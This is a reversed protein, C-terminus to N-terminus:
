MNVCSETLMFVSGVRGLHPASKVRATLRMAAESSFVLTCRSITASALYIDQIWASDSGTTEREQERKGLNERCVDYYRAPITKNWDHMRNKQVSCQAWLQLDYCVNTHLAVSSTRYTVLKSCTYMVTPILELDREWMQEIEEEQIKKLNSIRKLSTRWFLM